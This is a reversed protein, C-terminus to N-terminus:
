NRVKAEVGPLTYDTALQFTTKLLFAKSITSMAMRQDDFHLSHSHQCIYGFNM